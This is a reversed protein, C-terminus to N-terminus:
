LIWIMRRSRSACPSPRTRSAMNEINLLSMVVKWLYLRLTGEGLGLKEASRVTGDGQLGLHYLAFQSVHHLCRPTTRSVPDDEIM